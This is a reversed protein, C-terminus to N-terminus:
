MMQGIEEATEKFLVSLTDYTSQDINEPLYKFSFKNLAVEIEETIYKDFDAMRANTADVVSQNASMYKEIEAAFESQKDEPISYSNNAIVPNGNEDKESFSRVIELRGREFKAFDETYIEQENKAFEVILEELKKKTTDVSFLIFKNLGKLELAKLKNNFNVIDIRKMKVM